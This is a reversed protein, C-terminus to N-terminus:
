NILGKLKEWRPDTTKIQEQQVYKNYVKMAEKDCTIEGKKNDPHVRKIPLSLIIYEYVYESIDIETEASSISLIDENSSVEGGIKVVLQNNGSVELDFSENCRDCLTKVTGHVYFDLVIMESRKNLTLDLRLDAKKIESNDIKEFFADGIIFDYLHRGTPLGAFPIIYSKNKGM